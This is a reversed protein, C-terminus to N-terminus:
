FYVCVPHTHCMVRIPVVTILNLLVPHTHCMVRIPVVTILNLLVPHTHCMARIPFVLLVHLNGYSFRWGISNTLDFRSHSPCSMYRTHLRCSTYVPNQNPFGSSFLGSPLGHLLFSLLLIPKWSTPHPPPMLQISRAWSQYLLRASAFAPFKNALQSGTIKELVVRSLTTLLLLTFKLSRFWSLCFSPLKKINIWCGFLTPTHVPNM